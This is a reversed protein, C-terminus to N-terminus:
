TLYIDQLDDIWSNMLQDPFDALKAGFRGAHIGDMIAHQSQESVPLSVSNGRLDRREVLLCKSANQTFIAPDASTNSRSLREVV